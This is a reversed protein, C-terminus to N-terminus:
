MVEYLLVAVSGFSNWLLIALDTIKERKRSLEMLATERTSSSLLENIWAAIRERSVPTNSAQQQQQNSSTSVSPNSVTSSSSSSASGENSVTTPNPQYASPTSPTINMM